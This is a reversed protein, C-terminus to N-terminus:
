SPLPILNVAHIAAALSAPNGTRAYVDAVTDTFKIVHEDGHEVARAFLEDVTDAGEPAAPRTQPPAAEAPAYIATLAASAEWAAAVSPAWLDQDLAPLTRLSRYGGTQDPIRPVAALAAVPNLTPARRAVEAACPGRTENGPFPQWRAAWYALGHALETVRVPYDGDTMLTRVSHGIRIIGHTASSALGPLLRQWWTGLVQRWPQEATQQCFFETWDAVRLPDGLAASWDAGIPGSGRPFEELRKVYDDLWPSVKESQGHRAMAEVAMPAHNSLWGEFEPGTAHLRQYSEDLIGSVYSAM